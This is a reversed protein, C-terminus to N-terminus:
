INETSRSCALMKLYENLYRNDSDGCAQLLAVLRRLRQESFVGDQAISGTGGFLLQRIDDHIWKVHCPPSKSALELLDLLIDCAEARKEPLTEGRLLSSRLGLSYRPIQAGKRCIAVVKKLGEFQLVGMFPMATILILALEPNNLREGFLMVFDLYADASRHYRATDLNLLIETWLESLDFHPTNLRSKEYRSILSLIKDIVPYGASRRISCVLREASQPYNELLGPEDFILNFIDEEYGLLRGSGVDLIEEVCILLENLKEQAKQLRSAERVVTRSEDMKDLVKEGAPTESLVSELLTQLEGGATDDAAFERRRCNIVEVLNTAGTEVMGFGHMAKLYARVSYSAQGVLLDPALLVHKRLLEFLCAVQGASKSLLLQEFLVAVYFDSRSSLAEDPVDLLSFAEQARALSKEAEQARILKVAARLLDEQTNKKGPEPKHEPNPHV